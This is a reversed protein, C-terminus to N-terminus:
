DQGADRYHNPSMANRAGLLVSRHVALTLCCAPLACVVMCCRVKCCCCQEWSPCGTSFAHGQHRAGSSLPLWDAAAAAGTPAACRTRGSSQGELRQGHERRCHGTAPACVRGCGLCSCVEGGAFSVGSSLADAAQRLGSSVTSPAQRAPPAEGQLVVQLGGFAEASIGLMESLIATLLGARPCTKLARSCSLCRKCPIDSAGALRRQLERSLPPQSQLEGAPRQRLRDRPVELVAGAASGVRLLPKLPTVGALLAGLQLCTVNDSDAPAVSVARPCGRVQNSAVDAWYAEKVAKALGAWGQVNALRVHPMVLHLNSTPAM